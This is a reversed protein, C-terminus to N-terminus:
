MASPASPASMPKPFSQIAPQCQGAPSQRFGRGGGDARGRGQTLRRALRHDGAPLIGRVIRMSRPQVDRRRTGEVHSRQARGRVQHRAM